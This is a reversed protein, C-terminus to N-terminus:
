HGMKGGRAGSSAYSVMNQPILGKSTFYNLEDMAADQGETQRIKAFYAEWTGASWGAYDSAKPEVPQETTGTSGMNGELAGKPTYGMAQLVQAINEYGMAKAKSASETGWQGDVGAGVYQQAKKVLDASYGQNGTTGTSKSTDGGGGGGSGGSSGGSSAGSKLAMQEDYQRKAEDFEAQWQADSVQDRNQQYAMNQENWYNDYAFNREDSYEGYDKEYQNWYEADARDQAQQWDSVSDRYEGYAQNYADMYRNYETESQYRSDNTLRDLETYYDSLQDRYKNYDSEAQYRSENTLRDLETYYDSVTDRYKGYDTEAQYRSENTLRDLETNFDSVTDRYRNYDTESQYRSEDTLRDLETYYDSVTDRYRGYDQNERDAYLGYQNYLDEGERNYQNLALQYLEPVKDNLQQLYGQYTQQGVTQAYSNAYGGTMAQAMGMSDMMAQQGQLTYQDKYQQYLADGNLDYSFKERNLIKNLTEDLAAQWQSQYAGPKNALQQQLLAEAQLVSDSKNYEGPRTALHQNLLEQAQTVADGQTYEGPKTTLHQNLLAEANTVSDSQTYSGPKNALQQQLLAEAQAVTDSKQYEGYSFDSPKQTALDQRNQDAAATSDSVQFSDFTFPQASAEPTTTANTSPATNGTSTAPQTTSPAPQTTNAATLAGWTNNGVIGDVTLNNKQQYDKVAAQTNAGYIGDVTLNYGNNNLLKQLETVDSGKSGYGIQNYTAM